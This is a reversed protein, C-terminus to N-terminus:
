SHRNEKVLKELEALSGSPEENWLVSLVAFLKPLFSARAISDGDRIEINWFPKFGVLFGRNISVINQIEYVKTGFFGSIYILKNDFSISNLNLFPIVVPAM